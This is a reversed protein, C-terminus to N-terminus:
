PSMLVDPRRSLQIDPEETTETPPQNAENADPCDAANQRNGGPTPLIEDRIPHYIRGV